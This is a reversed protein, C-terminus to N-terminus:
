REIGPSGPPFPERGIRAAAGEVRHTVDSEPNPQDNPQGKQGTQVAAAPAGNRPAEWRGPGDRESQALTEGTGIEAAVGESEAADCLIPYRRHPRRM